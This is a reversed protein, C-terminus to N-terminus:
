FRSYRHALRKSPGSAPFWADQCTEHSVVTTLLPVLGGTRSRAMSSILDHGIEVPEDTLRSIFTSKGAGTVGMVAIFVDGRSPRGPPDEALIKEAQATSNSSSQYDDSEDELVEVGRHTWRREREVSNWAATQKGQSM